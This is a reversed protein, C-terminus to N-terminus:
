GWLAPEPPHVVAGAYRMAADRDRDLLLPGDLDVYDCSQGVLFAPAMGLSTGLMSGVFLGFGGARAQRALALGATLGGCKDLKINLFRYPALSALQRAEDFSEDACLPVPGRYGALAADGGAPLPQEILEVGLAGLPGALAELEAFNWGENVDVVLRAAPAVARVAAVRELDRGDRGGLKLKLVAGAPAALAGTAMEDPMDLSLTYCSTLPRPEGLGALRWAPTGARKARWDWLACDIANRAGGAPLDALVQDPSPPTRRGAGWQGIVRAMTEPTEGRYDIGAAEGHGTVGDATIAVHILPLHDITERAIAFPRALPWREIRTAVEIM